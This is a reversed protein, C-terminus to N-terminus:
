PATAGYALGLRPRGRHPAPSALEIVEAGASSALVRHCIMPPQLVCDGAHMEFAEGQGEYIVRM